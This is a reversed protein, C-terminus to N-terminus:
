FIATLLVHPSSDWGLLWMFTDPTIAYVQLRLVSFASVLLDLPEHGTLRGQKTLELVSLFSTM